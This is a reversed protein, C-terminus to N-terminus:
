DEAPRILRMQSSVVRVSEGDELQCHYMLYSKSKNPEIQIIIGRRGAYKGRTVQIEDFEFYDLKRRLEVSESM